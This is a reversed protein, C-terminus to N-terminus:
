CPDRFTAYGGDVVLTTGTMFASAPSLLFVVKDAVEEPTGGRGLASEARLQDLEPGSLSQMPATEVHGLAITNVHIGHRGLALALSRGLAIVAAKALTYPWGVVDGTLPPTSGFLVVHAAGSARLAPVAAQVATLSGLADARFIRECDARAVRELPTNWLEASFAAGAVCALGDLGGFAAAADLVADRTSTEAALDAQLALARAGHAEVERALELAREARGLYTFGVAAAGARACALVTPAGVGGTGGLILVRRGDLRMTPAGPRAPPPGFRDPEHARLVAPAVLGAARLRERTAEPLAPWPVPADVRAAGHAVSPREAAGPGLAVLDVVARGAARDIQVVRLGATPACADEIEIPAALSGDAGVAQLWTKM